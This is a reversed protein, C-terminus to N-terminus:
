ETAKLVVPNVPGGTARQVHLPAATFRFEYVGDAACAAALDDLWLMEVLPLGLNRLFAGHLPLVYTEGDVTQTVREVAVNDAGIAAINREHVWEVLERGFGLGPEGTPHWEADPDRTRGMSGTRMLLVDREEVAVGQAAATARLDELTVEAGMPLRDDEGRERAVDLLVGRGALGADALAAVSAKGHGRTETVDGDVGDLPEEFRKPESSAEADFGNYLKEGYWAHGLADVHTMGQLYFPTAFRDDSFKMGAAPALDGARYDREDAVNERRAVDRGPFSPDGAGTGDAVVEGTLPLGLTFREVADDGGALSARMGAAAEAGGLLNLTGREDDPGWRGWNDPLGELLDAVDPGGPSGGDALRPRRASERRGGGAELAFALEASCRYDDHM